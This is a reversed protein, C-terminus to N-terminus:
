SSCGPAKRQLNWLGAYKSFVHFASGCALVFGARGDLFGAQLLYTRVFQYAPRVGLDFVSARRGQEHLSQASLDSYRALKALYHQWDPDTYHLLHGELPEVRGAVLFQEHVTHASFRVCDRRGVRTVWDPYWGSHRMWTGLFNSRRNLRYGAVGPDNRRLVESLSRALEDDVVEDADLSLVWDGTARELASQKTPGFGRWPVQVVNPTFRRAVDVTKDTSGSDAVIIETAFVLRELCRALRQEENRTIM